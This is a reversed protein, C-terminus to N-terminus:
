KVFGIIKKENGAILVLLYMGKALMPVPITVQGGVAPLTHALIIKESVDPVSLRINESARLLTLQM